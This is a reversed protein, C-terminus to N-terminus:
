KIGLTIRLTIRLADRAAGQATFSVPAISAQTLRCYAAGTSISSLAFHHVAM